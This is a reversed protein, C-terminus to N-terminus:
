GAGALEAQIWSDTESAPDQIQAQAAAHRAPFQALFGTAGCLSKRALWGCPRRFIFVPAQASSRVWSYFPTQPALLLVATLARYRAASDFHEGTRQEPQRLKDHNQLFVICACAASQFPEGRGQKAL